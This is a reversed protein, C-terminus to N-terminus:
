APQAGGKPTWHAVLDGRGPALNAWPGPLDIVAIAATPFHLETGTLDGALQAAAPNHGVYMLTPVEDQTAAIIRELDAEGADYLQPDVSVSVETGLEAALYRWTQRARRAASCIVTDPIFGSARLWRGASGSDGRGRETLAREIDPGGPLEGAKAHRMVILRPQRTVPMPPVPSDDGPSSVPQM